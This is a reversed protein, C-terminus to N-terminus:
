SDSEDHRHVLKVWSVNVKKAMQKIVAGLNDVQLDSQLLLYIKYACAILICGALTAM